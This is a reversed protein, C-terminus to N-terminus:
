RGRERMLPLEVEARAGGGPEQLLGFSGGLLWVREKMSSLGLGETTSDGAALGVGRDRVRATVQRPTISVEVEIRESGSHPEEFTKDEM